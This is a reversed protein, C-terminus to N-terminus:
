NDVTTNISASASAGSITINSVSEEATNVIKVGSGDNTGGEYTVTVGSLDGDAIAKQLAKYLFKDQYITSSTGPGPKYVIPSSALASDFTVSVTDTAAGPTTYIGVPGAVIFNGDFFTVTEARVSYSTSTWSTGDLSYAYFGGTTAGSDGAGTVWLQGNGAAIANGQPDVGGGSAVGTVKTEWATTMDSIDTSYSASTITGGIMTMRDLEEHYVIDKMATDQGTVADLIQVSGAQDIDGEYMRMNVSASGIFGYIPTGSPNVGIWNAKMDQSNSTSFRSYTWSSGNANSIARHGNNGHAQYKGNWYEVSTLDHSSDGSSVATWTAGNDNSYTNDGNYGVAVWQNAGDTSVDYLSNSVGSTRNTFTVGDTTTMIAGSDGVFVAANASSASGRLRQSNPNTRSTITPSGSGTTGSWTILTEEASVSASGGSSLMMRFSTNFGM